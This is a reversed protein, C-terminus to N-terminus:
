PSEEAKSLERATGNDVAFVYWGAGQPMACWIASNSFLKITSHTRAPIRRAFNSPRLIPRAGSLRSKSRVLPEAVLDDLRVLRPKTDEQM